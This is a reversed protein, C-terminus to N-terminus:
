KREYKNKIKRWAKKSIEFKYYGYDKFKSEIEQLVEQIAQLTENTMTLIRRKGIGM